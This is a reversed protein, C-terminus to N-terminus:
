TMCGIIHTGVPDAYEIRRPGSHPDSVAHAARIANRATAPSKRMCMLPISFSSSHVAMRSSTLVTRSCNVMQADDLPSASYERSAGPSSIHGFKLSRGNKRPLYRASATYATGDSLISCAKRIDARNLGCRPLPAWPRPCTRASGLRARTSQSLSATKGLLDASSARTNERSSRQVKMGSLSHSRQSRPAARGCIM